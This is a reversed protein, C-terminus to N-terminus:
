GCVGCVGCEVVSVMDVDVTVALAVVICVLTMWVATVTGVIVGPNDGQQQQMSPTM